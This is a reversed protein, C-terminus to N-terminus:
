GPLTLSAPDVDLVTKEVMEEGYVNLFRGFKQCTGTMLFFETM